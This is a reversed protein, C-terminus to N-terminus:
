IYDSPHIVRGNTAATSLCVIAWDVYVVVLKVIYIGYPYHLYLKMYEFKVVLYFFDSTGTPYPAQSAGRFQRSIVAFASTVGRSPIL